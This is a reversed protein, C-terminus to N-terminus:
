RNGGETPYGADRWEPYGGEFVYVARYGAKMLKAGLDRSDHCDYGNCYVVLMTTPAVSSIFLPLRTDVTGAPLSVAGTIHGAAFENANRADVYLAEKRDYLEKVQMLGLPLPIGSLTSSGNAMGTPAQGTWSRYLLRHNWSVGIVAASLLILTIEAFLERPSSKGSRHMPLIERSTAAPCSTAADSKYCLIEGKFLMQVRKRTIERDIATHCGDGTQTLTVAHFPCREGLEEIRVVLPVDEVVGVERHRAHAAGFCHQRLGHLQDGERLVAPEEGYGM